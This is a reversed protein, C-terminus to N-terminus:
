VVFRVFPFHWFRIYIAWVQAQHAIVITLLILVWDWSLFVFSVVTCLREIICIVVHYTRVRFLIPVELAYSLPSCISASCSGVVEDGGGLIFLFVDSTFQSVGVLIVCELGVYGM